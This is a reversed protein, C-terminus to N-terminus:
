VLKKLSQKSAIVVLTMEKRLLMEPDINIM